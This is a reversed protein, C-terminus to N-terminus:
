IEIEILVGVDFDFFEFWCYYFVGICVLLDCLFGIKGYDEWVCLFVYVFCCGDFM